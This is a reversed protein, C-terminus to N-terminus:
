RFVSTLLGRAGLLRRALEAVQWNPRHALRTGALRIALPLYGCGRVVQAAAEPQERVRDGAVMALLATADDEPLQDLSLPHTSDLGSLKRRSTVLVLCGPEGPLLPTVQESGAVNDLVVLMRRRAAEGRWFSEREALDPPIRGGAVGMQRLLSDLAALPEVPRHESHGQLDIFLQADPFRDALLHAVHVALTTKGIGAMGDIAVVTPATSTRTALEILKAVSDARGTFDGVSRPLCRRARPTAGDGATPRALQVPQDDKLIRQHLERLMLGPETGIEDILLRHVRQYAALADARRGDQHLAVMLAVHLRERYPHQAVLETLEAVLEGAAGQTLQLEIREEAARVREEDLSTAVQRLLRSEIGALAPGRWSALAAHFRAVAESSEGREAAARAQDVQGRFQWLDLYESVVRLEYGAPHTVIPRGPVGAAALRKRLRSVCGHLQNRADRPPREDWVADILRSWNVVENASLLLTALLTRERDPMAVQQAGARVRFAGLMEFRVTEETESM